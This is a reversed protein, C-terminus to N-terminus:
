GSSAEKEAAPEPEAIPEAAPTAPPEPPEAVPEERQSVLEYDGEPVTEAEAEEATFKERDSIPSGGKTRIDDM